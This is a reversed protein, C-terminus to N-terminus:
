PNWSKPADPRYKLTLRGSSLQYANHEMRHRIMEDTAFPYTDRADVVMEEISSFDRQVNVLRNRVEPDYLLNLSAPVDVSVLKDVFEPHRIAVALANHAGMSLGMLVFRAIGLHEALPM